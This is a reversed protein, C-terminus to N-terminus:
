YNHHIVSRLPVFSFAESWFDVIVGRSAFAVPRETGNPLVHAIVAGIGCASADGAMRIPLDPNYHMLIDSSILTQKALEFSKQCMEAWKWKADKRLLDNLPALITAANPIFKGYYNILGPFLSLEQINKPAPADM